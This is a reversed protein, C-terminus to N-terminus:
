PVCAMGCSQMKERKGTGKNRSKNWRIQSGDCRDWGIGAVPNELSFSIEMFVHSQAPDFCLVLLLLMQSVSACGYFLFAM